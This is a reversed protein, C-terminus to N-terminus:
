QCLQFEAAAAKDKPQNWQRDAKRPGITVGERIDFCRQPVCNLNLLNEEWLKAGKLLQQEVQYLM